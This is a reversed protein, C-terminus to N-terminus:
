SNSGTPYRKIFEDHSRTLKAATQVLMRRPMMRMALTSIRNYVGPVYVDDGRVYASLARRVTEAASLINRQPLMEMTMDAAAQFGTLVPGPCLAMVRVGTGQVEGSLAGSFSLIFAKSAGYTAYYPAPMFSVISAVNIIGGAKKALMGPLFHGALVV